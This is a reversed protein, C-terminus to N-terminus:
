VATEESIYEPEVCYFIFPVKQLVDVEVQKGTTEYFFCM